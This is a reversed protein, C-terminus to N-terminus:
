QRYFYLYIWYIYILMISYCYCFISENNVRVFPTLLQQPLKCDKEQIMLHQFLYACARIASCVVQAKDSALASALFRMTRVEYVETLISIPREKIAVALASVRAALENEPRAAM